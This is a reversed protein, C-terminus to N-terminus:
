SLRRGRRWPPGAADRQRHAKARVESDDHNGHGQPRGIHRSAKCLSHVRAACLSRAQHGRRRGGQPHRLADHRPRSTQAPPAAKPARKALEPKVGSEVLKTEFRYRAGTADTGSTVERVVAFPVKESLWYKGEVRGTGEGFSYGYRDCAKGDVTETGEFVAIAGYDTAGAAIARVTAEDMDYVTGDPGSARSKEIGRMWGPGATGFPFGAGLVYRNVGKTGAYAGTKLEYRTELSVKGEEDALRAYLYESVDGNVTNVSRTRAFAGPVTAAFYAKRFGGASASAASLLLFLVFASSRVPVRM